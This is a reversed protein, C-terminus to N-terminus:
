RDALQRLILEDTIKTDAALLFAKSLILALVRDGEFPLFVDRAPAAAAPVICLYQSGPEMLINSSRLHIKYTARDGRVVLFREDLSLRDAIKLRPVLRELVARRTRDTDSLAGFAFTQWYDAHRRPEHTNWAPDLGISCVGVFLDIDRMAESFALPPVDALPVPTRDRYFLVRGTAVFQFVGSEGVGTSRDEPPDVDFRVELGWRPLVRTPTNSSDWDGQLRYQWDRERCLAALQHQRLIHGAFRNSSPSTEREAATLAYVERHAQKFPQVVEHRELWQRWAQVV